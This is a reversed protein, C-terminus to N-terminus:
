RSRIAHIPGIWRQRSADRAIAIEVDIDVLDCLDSHDRIKQLIQPVDTESRGLHSRQEPARFVIDRHPFGRIESSRVNGGSVSKASGESNPDRVGLQARHLGYGASRAYITLTRSFVACLGFVRDNM